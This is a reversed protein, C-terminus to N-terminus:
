RVVADYGCDPARVRTMTSTWDKQTPTPRRPESMRQRRLRATRRRLVLALGRRARLRMVPHRTEHFHATPTSGALLRLLRRPRLGPVAAPSGRAHRRAPVGRLRRPTRPQRGHRTACTTATAPGRDPAVLEDDVRAAADEIRDLMSEEIDIATLAARLVEDDYMGSDRAALILQARGCDDADAAPLLRRPRSSRPSRGGSSSGLQNGRRM